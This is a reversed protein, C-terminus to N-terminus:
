TERKKSSKKERIPKTLAKEEGWDKKLRYDIVSRPIGTIKSWETISKTEGNYTILRERTEGVGHTLAKEIDWDRELRNYLVNRSIGLEKAWQYVTQTKGKYTIENRKM